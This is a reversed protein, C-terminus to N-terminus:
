IIIMNKPSKTLNRIGTEEFYIVDEIRVGYKGPIYLGPEVSLTMGEKIVDTCKPSFSPSEHIDLGLSHGLSHIFYQDMGKKKFFDRAIGDCEKGLMGTKITNLALNQAEAVLNYITKLEDCPEGFFVTRTMDSCYGNFKAGFDMTIPMGSKLKSDGRHAHPKSSHEGVAVISTFALSDGGCEFLHAELKSALERETIGEKIDSLIKIFAKDTIDQAKQMIAIEESSKIARLDSITKDIFNFNQIGKDKFYYYDALSLNSEVSATKASSNNLFDDFTAIDAITLDKIVIGAEESYRSDTFYYSKGDFLVIIADANEYGSLYFLNSPSKIICIDGTYDIKKM